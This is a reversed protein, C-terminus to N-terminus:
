AQLIDSLITNNRGNSSKTWWRTSFPITISETLSKLVLIFICFTWSKLSYVLKQGVTICPNMLSDHLAVDAHQSAQHLRTSVITCTFTSQAQADRRPECWFVSVDYKVDHQRLVACHVWAYSLQAMLSWNIHKFHNLIFFFIIIIKKSM